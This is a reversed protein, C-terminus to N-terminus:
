LLFNFDRDNTWTKLDIMNDVCFAILGMMGEESIKETLGELATQFPWYDLNEFLKSAEPAKLLVHFESDHRSGTRNKVQSVLEVSQDMHSIFTVDQVSNEDNHHYLEIKMEKSFPWDDPFLSVKKMWKERYQKWIKMMEAQANEWHNESPFLTEYLVAYSSSDEAQWPNADKKEGYLEQALYVKAGAYPWGPFERDIWGAMHVAAMSFNRAATTLHGDPGKNAKEEMRCWTYAFYDALGKKLTDIWKMGINGQRWAARGSLATMWEYHFVHFIERAWAIGLATEFPIGWKFYRALLPYIYLVVRNRSPRYASLPNDLYFTGMAMSYLEWYVEDLDNCLCSRLDGLLSRYKNVWEDWREEADMDPAEGSPTRDEVDPELALHKWLEFVPAPCDNRRTCEEIKKKVDEEGYGLSQPHFCSSSIMVSLGRLKEAISHWAAEAEPVSHMPSFDSVLRRGLQELMALLQENDMVREMTKLTKKGASEMLVAADIKSCDKENELINRATGLMDGAFGTGEYERYESVPDYMYIEHKM